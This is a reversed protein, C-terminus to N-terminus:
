EKIESYVIQVVQRYGMWAQPQEFRIVVDEDDHEPYCIWALKM